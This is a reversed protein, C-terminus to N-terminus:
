AIFAYGSYYDRICDLRGAILDTMAPGPTSSHNPPQPLTCSSGTRCCVFRGSCFFDGFEDNFLPVESRWIQAKALYQAYTVVGTRAEIVPEQGAFWSCGRVHTL